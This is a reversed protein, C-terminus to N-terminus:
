FRSLKTNIIKRTTMDLSFKFLLFKIHVRDSPILKNCRDLLDQARILMSSDDQAGPDAFELGYKKRMLDTPAISPIESKRSRLYGKKILASYHESTGNTSKIGLAKGVTRLSPISLNERINKALYELIEGQRPTLGVM